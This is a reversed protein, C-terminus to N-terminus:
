RKSSLRRGLGGPVVRGFSARVCGLPLLPAVRRSGQCGGASPAAGGHCLHALCRPRRQHPCHARRALASDGAVGVPLPILPAFAALNQKECSLPLGLYNQPFSELSCGLADWVAAVTDDDVHM